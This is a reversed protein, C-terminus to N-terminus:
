HDEDDAQIFTMNERNDFAESNDRQMHLHKWLASPAAATRGRKELETTIEKLHPPDLSSKDSM